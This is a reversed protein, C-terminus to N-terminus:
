DFGESFFEKPTLGFAKILKMLSSYKINEGNEYRNYQTRTINHEYAFFDANTYGKKIRLAKIRHALKQLEPDTKGSRVKKENEPENGTLSVLKAKNSSKEPKKM